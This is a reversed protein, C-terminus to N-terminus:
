YKVEGTYASALADMSRLTDPHEPGLVRRPLDFAQVLIAEAEQPKGQLWSISGLRSLDRLTRPDKLEWRRKIWAWRKKSKRGHKRLSAWIWTLRGSRPIFRQKWKRNTRFSGKFASRLAIWCRACRAKRILNQSTTLVRKGWCTTRCFIM